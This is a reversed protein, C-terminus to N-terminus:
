PTPEASSKKLARPGYFRILVTSKQVTGYRYMRLRNELRKGPKILLFIFIFLFLHRYPLLELFLESLLIM